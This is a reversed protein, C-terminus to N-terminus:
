PHVQTRTYYLDITSEKMASPFIHNEVTNTQYCIETNLGTEDYFATFIWLIVRKVTPDEKQQIIDGISYKPNKDM